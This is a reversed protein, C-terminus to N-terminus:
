DLAFRKACIGTDIYNYEQCWLDACRKEVAAIQSILGSRGASPARRFEDRNKTLARLQPESLFETLVEVQCACIFSQAAGSWVDEELADACSALYDGEAGAPPPGCSALLTLLVLGAPLSVVGRLPHRQYPTEM